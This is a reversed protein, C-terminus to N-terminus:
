VPPAPRTALRTWAAAGPGARWGSPGAGHVRVDRTGGVAGDEVADHAVV